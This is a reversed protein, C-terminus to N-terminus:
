TVWNKNRPSKLLIWGFWLVRLDYIRSLKPTCTRGPFNNVSGLDKQKLVLIKSKVATPFKPFKLFNQSNQLTQFTKVGITNKPFNKQVMLNELNFSSSQYWSWRKEWFVIPTIVKWVNCFEWFKGFNWFNWVAMFDLINTTFRFSELDTFLKGPRVQVGYILM